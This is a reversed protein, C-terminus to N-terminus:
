EPIEGRSHAARVHARIAGVLAHWYPLDGRTVGGSLHARRQEFFLCTRLDTLTSPLALQEHWAQLAPNAIAAMKEIGGWHKYGDFTLAFISLDGWGAGPPPIDRETLEANPIEPVM